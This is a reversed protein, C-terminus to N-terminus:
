RIPVEVTAVYEDFDSVRDSVRVRWTGRLGFPAGSVTYHGPGSLQAPVAIPGVDKDPQSLAVRLAKTGRFQAGDRARFLYLHIQNAGARAPDVTMELEIPGMRKTASFPGPTRATPPAYSVLAATVGLVVVILGVEARLSRRLTRGSEGPPAGEEAVRRLAPLGCRRNWAGFGILVLLLVFKILVARGFATHLLNDMSRVHVYAQVLGSVLLTAVAAFALPSFRLLTAALLRSRDPAALQRTGAPLVVVLMVLGGLWVSMAGVHLVDLVILLGGPSQTSAHGALAPSLVLFAAPGVVLTRAWRSRPLLAVALALWAVLRLGWVTGFRTHLVKRVVDTKAAEWFSTGGATAGQLVLGLASCAVGLGIAVMLVHRLRRGFRQAPARWAAEGRATAGLAPWWVAGLFALGGVALAIAVYGLGRVVGFAIETAPGAAARGSLEAVTERPAAGPSGISFVFGGSVPHSDASVVRYTATYTGHPLDPRLGIAVTRQGGPRRVSGTEVREGEADFVRVAGFSGEVAEDFRLEVLKPQTAVTAGRQPVTNQLIAHAGAAPAAVAAVLLAAALM